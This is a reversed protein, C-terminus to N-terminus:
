RNFLKFQEINLLISLVLTLTLLSSQSIDPEKLERVLHALHALTYAMSVIFLTFNIAKRETYLLVLIWVIPLHYFITRIVFTSIPVKGTANEKVIDIGYFLEGIHYNFHLIMSIILLSWLIICRLKHTIEM